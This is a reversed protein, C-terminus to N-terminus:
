MSCVIILDFIMSFIRQASSKMSIGLKSYLNFAMPFDEFMKKKDNQRNLEVSKDEGTCKDDVTTEANIQERDIEKVVNVSFDFTGFDCVFTM